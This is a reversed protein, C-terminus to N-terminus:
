QSKTSDLAKQLDSKAQELAEVFKREIKAKDRDVIRYIIRSAKGFKANLIKIFQQGQKSSGSSKRGAIEFIAGAADKNLLAAASTTYDKRVKRQAKSTSIGKKVQAADWAPWGAGGRVNKHPNKAQTNKWGTLPTHNISVSYSDVLNQADKKAKRLEDNIVKEFKKLAEKDFQKLGAITEHLGYIVLGENAM